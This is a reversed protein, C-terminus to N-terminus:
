RCRLQRRVLTSALHFLRRSRPMSRGRGASCPLYQVRTSSYRELSTSRCTRIYLQLDVSSNRCTNTISALVIRIPPLFDRGNSSKPKSLYDVIFNRKGWGYSSTSLQRHSKRELLRREEVITFTGVTETNAYMTHSYIYRARSHRVGFYIYTCSYLVM